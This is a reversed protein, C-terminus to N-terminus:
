EDTKMEKQIKDLDVQVGLVQPGLNLFDVRPDVVVDVVTHVLAAEGGCLLGVHAGKVVEEGMKVLDLSNERLVPVESATVESQGIHPEKGREHAKVSNVVPVELGVEPDAKEIRRRRRRRRRRLWLSLVREKKTGYLPKGIVGVQLIEDLFDVLHRLHLSRDVEVVDLVVVVAAVQLDVGSPDDRLTREEVKVGWM